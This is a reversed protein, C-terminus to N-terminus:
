GNGGCGFCSSDMMNYNLSNYMEGNSLDHTLAMVYKRKKWFYCDCFFQKDFKFNSAMDHFHLLLNKDHTFM